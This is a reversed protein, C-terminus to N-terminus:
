RCPFASTLRCRSSPARRAPHGAYAGHGPEFLEGRSVTLHSFTLRPGASFGIADVHVFDAGLAASWSRADLESPRTATASYSAEIAWDVRDSLPWSGAPEMGLLMSSDRTAM